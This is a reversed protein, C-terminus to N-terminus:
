KVQFPVRGRLEHEHVHIDVEPEGTESSVDNYNFTMQEEYSEGVLEGTEHDIIMTNIM